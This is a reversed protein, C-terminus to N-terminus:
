ITQKRRMWGLGALASGFLWVAAPIPVASGVLTGGNYVLGQYDVSTYVGLTFQCNDIGNQCGSLVSPNDLLTIPGPGDGELLTTVGGSNTLADVFGFLMAVGTYTNLEAVSALATETFVISSGDGTVDIGYHLDAVYGVSSLPDASFGVDSVALTDADYSFGGTVLHLDLGPDLMQINNLEWDVLAAQATLSVLLLVCSALSKRM